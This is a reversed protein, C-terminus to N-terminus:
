LMPNEVTLGAFRSFDRDASWLVTAGHDRCICAVRADHVLPGVALAQLLTERLSPWHRESESEIVLSPSSRWADVQQVAVDVPTPPKYIRPSTVIALFEHLCPWPIMWPGSGEALGRVREAARAHWPSDVRHAYILVNADVAIM